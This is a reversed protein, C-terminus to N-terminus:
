YLCLLVKERGQGIWKKFAKHLYPNHNHSKAETPQYFEGDTVLIAECNGNAIEEAAKPLNAYNVEKINCLENYIDEGTSISSDLTVEGGKISYYSTARQLIPLMDKYFSSGDNMAQAVCTSYDVYLKMDGTKLPTKKDGFYTQHFETIYEPNLEADHCCGSILFMSTFALTVIILKSEIQKM